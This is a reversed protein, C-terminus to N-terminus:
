IQRVPMPVPLVPRKITIPTLIEEVRLTEPNNQVGIGANAFETISEFVIAFGFYAYNIVGINSREVSKEFKEFIIIEKNFVISDLKTKERELKRIIKMSAKNSAVIQKEDIKSRTLYSKWEKTFEDM